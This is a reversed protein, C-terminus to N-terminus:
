MVMGGDINIVHGTIYGAEDSCLFKVAAAVDDATGLTRMPINRLLDAVISEGLNSTMDTQIFGPAVANVTIGRSATERAISKTFGIVGAKAAAYNSQGFNGTIGVVSSVNVIRGWRRKVMRYLLNKTWHFCSSLNTSLVSDWEDDSMRMLLNDRAIGANNILIDVAAHKSLIARCANAVADASSVDVAM